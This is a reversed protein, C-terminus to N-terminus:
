FKENKYTKWDAPIQSVPSPTIAPTPPIVKTLPTTKPFMLESYNQWAYIGGAGLLISIIAVLIILPAKSKKGTPSFSPQNAIKPTSTSPISPQAPQNEM